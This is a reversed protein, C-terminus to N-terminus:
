LILFPRCPHGSHYRADSIGECFPSKMSYVFELFQGEHMNTRVFTRISFSGIVVWNDGELVNTLIRHQQMEGSTSFTAVAHRFRDDISDIYRNLATHMRARECIHERTRANVYWHVVDAYM